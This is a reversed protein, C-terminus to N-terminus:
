RRRGLPKLRRAQHGPRQLERRRIHYCAARQHSVLQLLCYRLVDNPTLKKFIIPLKSDSTSDDQMRGPAMEWEEMELENAGLLSLGGSMMSVDRVASRGIISSRAARQAVRRQEPASEAVSDTEAVSQALEDVDIVEPGASDEVSPAVSSIGMNSSPIGKVKHDPIWDCQNSRRQLHSYYRCGVCTAVGSFANKAAIHMNHPLSICPQGLRSTSRHNREAAMCRDQNNVERGTLYALACAYHQADLESGRHFHTWVEPLTRKRRQSLMYTIDERPWVKQSPSLFQHLYEQLETNVALIPTPSASAKVSAESLRLSKRELAGANLSNRKQTAMFPLSADVLPPADPPLPNNSIVIAPSGGTGQRAYAGVKTLTGDGNDNFTTSCHGAGFHGGLGKLGPFLRRCDRVPCVFPLEPDDYLQYNAPILAGRASILGNDPDIFTLVTLSHSCLPMGQFFSYARNPEAMRMPELLDGAIPAPPFPASETQSTEFQSDGPALSSSQSGKRAGEAMVRKLLDAPSTFSMSPGQSATANMVSAKLSPTIPKSTLESVQKVVEAETLRLADESRQASSTAM